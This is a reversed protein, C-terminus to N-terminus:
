HVAPSVMYIEHTKADFIAFPDVKVSNLLEIVDGEFNIRNADNSELAATVDEYVVVAYRRGDELYRHFGLSHIVRYEDKDYLKQRYVVEYRGDKVQAFEKAKTAVLVIDDPHVGRYMDTDLVRIMEERTANPGLWRILGKSVLKTQISGNIFQYVAVPIESNEWESRLADPIIHTQESM